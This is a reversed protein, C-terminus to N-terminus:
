VPPLPIRFSVRTGRRTARVRVRHALQEIMELGRGRHGRFRPRPRWRGHDVVKVAVASCRIGLRVDVTGAAGDRYAHEVGNALAEGLALQLDILVDRPLGNREAWHGVRRRMAPLERPDARSSMRLTRVPLPRLACRRAVPDRSVHRASRTPEPIVDTPALM